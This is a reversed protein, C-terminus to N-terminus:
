ARVCARVCARVRVCAGECVCPFPLRSYDLRASRPKLRDDNGKRFRRAHLTRMSDLTSALKHESARKRTGDANRALTRAPGPRYKQTGPRRAEWPKRAYWGPGLRSSIYIYEFICCYHFVYGSRGVYCRTRAPPPRRRAAPPTPPGRTTTACHPGPATSAPPAARARISAAQHLPPPPPPATPPSAAECPLRFRDDRPPNKFPPTVRVCSYAPASVYM